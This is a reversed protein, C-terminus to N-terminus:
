DSPWLPNPPLCINLSELIQGRTQERGRCSHQGADRERREGEKKKQKKRETERENQLLMPHVHLFENGNLSIQLYVIFVRLKDRLM